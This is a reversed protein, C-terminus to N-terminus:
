DHGYPVRIIKSYKKDQLTLDLSLQTKASSAMDMSGSEKPLESAEPEYSIVYWTHIPSCRETELDLWSDQQKLFGERCDMIKKMNIPSFGPLGPPVSDTTVLLFSGVRQMQKWTLHFQSKEHIFESDRTIGPWQSIRLRPRYYRLMSVIQYSDAFVADHTEIAATSEIFDAFRGYGHTEKLIRDLGPNVRFWPKLTYGIILALLLMNCGTFIRLTRPRPNLMWACLPAAGILWVAPWNAEVKGNMAIMGFTVLPSLVAATFLPILREDIAERKESDPLGQRWRSLSRILLFLIPFLLTGWLALQGGGYDILRKFLTDGQSVAKISAFLSDLPGPPLPAESIKPKEEDSLQAEPPIFLKALKDETGGATIPVPEPYGQETSEPRELYFGHRLQFKWTIWSHQQNWSLNPLFFILAALGGAWPWPTRLSRSKDKILAWLFVPGILLMTFKGLLGFGTAIGATIWRWKQGRLAYAAEHLGLIWAFILIADPTTLFGCVLAAGNGAGLLLASRILPSNEPFFLSCLRKLLILGGTMLLITALRGQFFTGAIQNSIWSLWAVAPPHDFYGRAPKLGWQYYYAEDQTMPFLLAAVFFWLGILALDSFVLNKLWKLGSPNSEPTNTM